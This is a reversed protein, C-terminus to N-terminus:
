LGWQDKECVFDREESVNKCRKIRSESEKKIKWM